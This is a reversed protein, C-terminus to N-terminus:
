RWTSRMLEDIQDSYRSLAIRVNVASDSAEFASFVWTNRYSNPSEVNCIQFAAKMTSGGKDGGVKIWVEEEPIAGNLSTCRDNRAM